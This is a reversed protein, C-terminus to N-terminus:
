YLKREEKKLREVLLLVDRACLESDAHYKAEIFSAAEQVRRPERLFGWVDAGSVNLTYYTGSKLDLLASGETLECSAVGAAAVVVSDATVRSGV